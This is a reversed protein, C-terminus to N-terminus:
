GRCDCAYVHHHEHITRCSLVTTSPPNCVAAIFGFGIIAAAGGLAGAGGQRRNMIAKERDPIDIERLKGKRNQKKRKKLNKKEKM